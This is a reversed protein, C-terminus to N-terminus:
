HLGGISVIISYGASGILMSVRQILTQKILGYFIANKVHFRRKLRGIGVRAELKLQSRLLSNPLQSLWHSVTQLNNMRHTQLERAM